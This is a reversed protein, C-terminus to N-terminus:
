YKYILIRDIDSAVYNSIIGGGPDLTVVSHDAENIQHLVVFHGRVHVSNLIHIIAITNPEFAKKFAQMKYEDTKLNLKEDSALQFTSVFQRLGKNNWYILSGDFGGNNVLVQNLVVPSFMDVNQVKGTCTLAIAVSTLACGSSGLTYAGTGLQVNTWRPDAQNYLVCNGFNLSNNSCSNSSIGFVKERMEIMNQGQYLAYADRDEQRTPLCGSGSCNSYAPGCAESVYEDLGDPYIYPAYYCGGDSSNGPNYWNNGLFAYRGSLEIFTHYRQLVEIFGLIGDEFSSYSTCREPQGNYCTIGFYNHKSGGPSFGELIARVIIMEPNTNNELAVDYIFEANEQFLSWASHSDHFANVRSVFESKSLTTTTLSFNSCNSGYGITTDEEEDSKKEITTGLTVDGFFYKLIENYDKGYERFLYYAGMVSFGSEDDYHLWEYEYDVNDPDEPTPDPVEWVVWCKDFEDEEEDISDTPIPPSGVPHNCPCDRYISNALYEDTFSNPIKFHNAQFLYHNEEDEMSDDWCFDSVKTSVLNGSRDLLILGRAIELAADLITDSSISTPLTKDRYTVKCDSSMAETRLAIAISVYTNLIGSPKDRFDNAYSYTAFKVYDELAMTTTSGSESGDYPDYIVKVQDCKPEYYPYDNIGSSDLVGFLSVLVLVGFLFIGGIAAVKVKFIKDLTAKSAEVFLGNKPPEIDLDVPNEEPLHKSNEELNEDDLLKSREEDDM